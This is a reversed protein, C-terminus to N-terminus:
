LRRRRKPAEDLAPQLGPAGMLDPDVHRVCAVREHAVCEIATGAPSPEVLAEAGRECMARAAALLTTVSVMALLKNFRM